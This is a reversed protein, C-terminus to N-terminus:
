ADTAGAMEPQGKLAAYAQEWLPRSVDSTFEVQREWVFAKGAEFAEKSVYGRFLACTPIGHNSAEVNNLRIYAQRTEGYSTEISVQVAM